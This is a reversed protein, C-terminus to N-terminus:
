LEELLYGQSRINTIRIKLEKKIKTLNVRLANQSPQELCNLLTKYHVLKGRNQLLTEFLTTPILGMEVIRQNLKIIKSSPDYEIEGYTITKEQIEQM